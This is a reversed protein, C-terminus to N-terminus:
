MAWCMSSTPSTMTRWAPSTRSMGAIQGSSSKLTRANRNAYDGPLSPPRLCSSLAARSPPRRARSSRAAPPTLTLRGAQKELEVHSLLKQRLARTNKRDVDDVIKQLYESLSQHLAAEERVQRVTRGIWNIYNAKPRISHEKMWALLHTSEESFGECFSFIKKLGPGAFSTLEALFTDSDGDCDGLFALSPRWPHPTVGFEKIEDITHLELIVFRAIHLRDFRGFPVLSNEPDAHGVTTNMSRLFTRLADIQGDRVAAVVLFPSQPIM